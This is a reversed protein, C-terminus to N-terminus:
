ACASALEGSEKEYTSKAQDITMTEDKILAVLDNLEKKVEDKPSKAILENLKAEWDDSLKQGEEALKEFKAQDQAVLAAQLELFKANVAAWATTNYAVAETCVQATIDAATTTTAPASTGGANPTATTCGAAAGLAVTALAAAIVLKRM